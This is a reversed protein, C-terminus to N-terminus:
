SNTQSPGYYVYVGMYEYPIITITLNNPRRVINVPHKITQYWM